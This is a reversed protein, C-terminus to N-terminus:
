GLAVRRHCQSGLLHTPSYRVTSAEGDGHGMGIGGSVDLIVSSALMASSAPSGILSYVDTSAERGGDGTGTGSGAGIAVVGFTTALSLPGTVGCFSMATTDTAECPPADPACVRVVSEGWRAM